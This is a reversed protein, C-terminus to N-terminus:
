EEDDDEDAILLDIQKKLADKDEERFPKPLIIWAKRGGRLRVPMPDDYEGRETSPTPPVSPAPARVVSGSATMGSKAGGQQLEGPEEQLTSDKSPEFQAFGVSERFLKILGKAAQEGFGRDVVLHHTLSSDSPLSDPYRELLESFIAPELLFHKLYRLRDEETPALKYAQLKRSVVVERLEGTDLLGYMKLTALARRAPGSLTSYGMAEVAANQPISNLGEEDYVRLARSIAEELHYSPAKPSRKRAM